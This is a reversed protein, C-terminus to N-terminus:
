KNLITLHGEENDMFSVTALVIFSKKNNEKLIYNLNCGILVYEM